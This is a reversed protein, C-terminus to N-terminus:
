VPNVQKISDAIVNLKREVVADNWDWHLCQDRWRRVRVRKCKAIHAESKKLSAPLYTEDSKKEDDINDFLNEVNFTMISITEGQAPLAVWSLLLLFLWRNAIKM